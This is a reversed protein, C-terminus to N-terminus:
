IEWAMFREQFVQNKTVCGTLLMKTFEESELGGLDM